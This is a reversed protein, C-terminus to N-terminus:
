EVQDESVFISQFVGEDWSWPAVYQTQTRRARVKRSFAHNFGIIFETNHFQHDM